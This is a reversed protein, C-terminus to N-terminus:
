AGKLIIRTIESPSGLRMPPGWYGTGRSVYLFVNKHIYPGALFPQDLGVIFNWPFLQGGHTHGSLQVDFGAKAADYVSKPQHALLIKIHSFPANEIAKAPDSRHAPIFQEARIDTVGAVLVRGDGAQILRHTNNLVTFGLQGVKEVWQEANFYYEHNGTVFYNGYVSKLNGLPLVENGLDKVFGDALDGTLAVVSPSLANVKQVVEELFNKKITSGMHIDTIQVLSFGDLDPHLHKVPIIVEKVGPTKKANYIGAGSLMFAGGSLGIAVSKKLFFRRQGAQAPHPTGRSFLRRFLSVICGIADHIFLLTLLFSLIGIGCYAYWALADIGPGAHGKIKALLTLFTCLVVSLVLALLFFRVSKKDSLGKTFRLHIYIMGLVLSVFFFYLFHM